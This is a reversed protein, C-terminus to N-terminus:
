DSHAYEEEKIRDLVWQLERIATENCQFRTWPMYADFKNDQIYKDQRAEIKKVLMEM